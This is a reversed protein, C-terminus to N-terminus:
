RTIPASEQTKSPHKAKPKNKSLHIDPTLLVEDYTPKSRWIFTPTPSKEGLQATPTQPTLSAPGSSNPAPSQLRPFNIDDLLLNVVEDRVTEVEEPDQPTIPRTPPQEVLSTVRADRVPDGTLRGTLRGTHSIQKPSSVNGGVHEQQALAPEAHSDPATWGENNPLKVLLDEAKSM